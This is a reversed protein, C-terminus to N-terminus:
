LNHKREELRRDLSTKVSYQAKEHQANSILEGLLGTSFLQVGVIMILIGFWLLPYRGLISGYHLKLYAIYSCVAFGILTFVSGITGFLHLPRALYRTLLLVTFLDLFGYLFRGLGYKTKGYKRPHHRIKVEGIRYGQHHALVPLYRHLQGYLPIDETVERRYAKLGCNFDHIKIGSVRAIVWNFVKSPITKTLPDRREFKWGSVLDYGENLKEMLRPIEAPDDQLDADMTVLLKGRAAKFGASLAVAKGYNRRFQFVVVRPDREYLAQLVEFSGDRSGDDVFILEFPFGLPDLVDILHSYLEDLSEAENFLPIVVSLTVPSKSTNM